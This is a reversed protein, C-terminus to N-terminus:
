FIKGDFPNKLSSDEVEIVWLDPDRSITRKIYDDITKEESMNMDMWGLEGDFNRQQMYLACGNGLGNIKIVIMGSNHDGKQHLYYPVGNMNLQKTHVEVFLHTPLRDDVM